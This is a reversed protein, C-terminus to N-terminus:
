DLGLLHELRKIIEGSEGSLLSFVKIDAWSGDAFRMHQRLVGETRAGLQEFAAVARKNEASVRWEIRRVRCDMARRIMALQTAPFIDTGRMEEPLWNYGIRVRRHTRNPEVFATLGAFADDRVRWVIFPILKGAKQEALAVDYYAEFSTGSSLIPMWDWMETIGANKLLERHEAGARELRVIGNELGSDGFEM